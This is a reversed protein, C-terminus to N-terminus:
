QFSKKTKKWANYAKEIADCYARSTITVGSIADVDGGDDKIKVRYTSPNKGILQSTFEPEFVRSGFGQTENQKLVNIKRISGDPKFGVMVTLKGNYAKSSSSKVAYGVIKGGKKGCYIECGDAKQFDSVPDNDFEPLVAKVPKLKRAKEKEDIPPTKPATDAVVAKKLMDRSLVTGALNIADLYARSTITAGSMADITGDDVKLAMPTFANKGKFQNTFAPETKLRSGYGVSERNKLPLTGQITGDPAIGTLVWVPGIYGKAASKVAYGIIENGKKAVFVDVNKFRLKEKLPDNTFGPIVAKIADNSKLECTDDPGCLQATEAEKKLIFKMYGRYARDVADCYARSSITAATIADVDGGDKKVALRFLGFDKNLFQGGFKESAIQTGLGPTEKQKLVVIKNIKGSPLFGIMLEFRGNFGKETYTKVACGVTDGNKTAVYFELGEKELRAKLPDNDYAPLVQKIAAAEKERIAKEIPEKTIIYVYSLAAAMVVSILVLSLIMNKLTSKLKPM